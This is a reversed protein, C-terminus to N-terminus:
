ELADEYDLDEQHNNGDAAAATVDSDESDFLEFDVLDEDQKVTNNNENIYKETQKKIVQENLVNRSDINL